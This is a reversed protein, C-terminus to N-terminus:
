ELNTKKLLAIFLPEKRIPDLTPDLKLYNYIRIDKQRFAQELEDIAVPYNKLIVNCRALHYPSKEPFDKITKMLEERAHLTDGMAAHIYSLYPGPYDWPNNPVLQKCLELAGNFDKRQVLVYILTGKTLYYKPDLAMTKKLQDYALDYKRALWYNKGLVWNVSVSLPDLELAKKVEKIGEEINEGTYELVNGYYMHALPYNPNLEIAKQLTTKSKVWDYDFAGQIWGLTTLAESLNSDISLAKLAYDRGIPVAQLQPIGKQNYTYCDALGAYALAYDPDLELAKKYNKEASDFSAVTRADWFARGKRYYKYAEINETYNKHLERKEEPSLSASLANVIQQAVESQVSFIDGSAYDYNNGWLRKNSSVDILEANVQIKDGHRQITGTLIVTVGLEDSIQKISKSTKKFSKVSFWAIVKELSSIKSLNNIIDQTIGDSIYEDSDPEGSNEFPLVAITREGTFQKTVFFKQYILFSGILLVIVAIAMLLKKQISRKDIEKLKGALEQRKPITLGENTLAFIEMPEDVNKFHFRGVSVCKFEPQNRIQSNIQSSFLITNAIGLSQVRSAVNVGDGFVKGDEFFIEGLHLGIRLPVIPVARFQQQMEIACRIAQTASAFTCLSGDGFDNLIEGGYVSVLHKLVAAYRKNVSLAAQEDKQMMSTSGVIDTFLIAALRRIPQM